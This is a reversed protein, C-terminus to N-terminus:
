IDGEHQVVTATHRWRPTPEEGTCYMQEVCLKVADGNETLDCLDLNVKFVSRIPKLPSSRGGFVVAGGSPCSTVTHYLRVGPSFFIYTNHTKYYYHIFTNKWHQWTSSLFYFKPIEPIGPIRKSRKTFYLLDEIHTPTWNRVGVHSPNEEYTPVLMYYYITFDPNSSNSRSGPHIVIFFVLRETCEPVELIFAFSIDAAFLLLYHATSNKIM